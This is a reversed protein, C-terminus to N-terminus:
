KIEKGPRREPADLQEAGELMRKGMLAAEAAAQLLVVNSVFCISFAGLGPLAFALPGFSYLLSKGYGAITRKRFFIFNAASLALSLMWLPMMESYPIRYISLVAPFACVMEARAMVRAGGSGIRYGPKSGELIFDGGHPFVVTFYGDADTLFEMGDVSVRVGAIGNGRSDVVRIRAPEGAYIEGEIVFTGRRLVDFIKGITGYGEAGAYVLGDFPFLLTGYGNADAITSQGEASLMAFGIWEGRNNQVQFLGPEGEVLTGDILIIQLAKERCSNGICISGAACDADACCEYSVCSHGVISGCPCEIKRCEGGLCAEDWACDSDTECYVCVGGSCVGSICEADRACREDKEKKPECSGSGCYEDSACDADTACEEEVIIIFDRYTHATPSRAYVRVVYEGPGNVTIPLSISKTSGAVINDITGSGCSFGSICDFYVQVDSESYDGYNEVDIPISITSGAGAQFPGLPLIRLRHHRDGGPTPAPNCTYNVDVWYTYQTPSGDNPLMVQFDSTTGNWDPRDSVVAAVFVLNGAADNLYGMRFYPSTANNAYTYTTPVNPVIGYTLTFTSLLTFTASGGESGGTFADLQALNGASLPAALASGNVAIIHMTLSSYGYTCNPDQAQLNNRTINSGTSTHAYNTAAGLVVEGYLGDWYASPMRGSVNLHTVNGGETAVQAFLMGFLLLAAFASRM